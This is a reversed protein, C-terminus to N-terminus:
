LSCTREESMAAACRCVVRECRRYYAVGDNYKTNYLLLLLYGHVVCRAVRVAYLGSM